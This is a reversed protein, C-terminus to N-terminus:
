RGLVGEKIQRRVIQPGHFRRFGYVRQGGRLVDGIGDVVDVFCGTLTITVNHSPVALIQGKTDILLLRHCCRLPRASGHDLEEDAGVRHTLSRALLSGLRDGAPRRHAGEEYAAKREIM